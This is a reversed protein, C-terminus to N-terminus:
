SAGGTLMGLISTVLWIITAIVALAAATLVLIGLAAAFWQGAGKPRTSRTM